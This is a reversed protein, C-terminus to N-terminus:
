DLWWHSDLTGSSLAQRLIMVMSLRASALECSTHGWTLMIIFISPLAQSTPWKPELLLDFHYMRIAVSTMTMRVCIPQWYILKNKKICPRHYLSPHQTYFHSFYSTMQEDHIDCLSALWRLDIIFILCLIKWLERKILKLNPKFQVFCRLHSRYPCPIHPAPLFGKPYHIDLRSHM